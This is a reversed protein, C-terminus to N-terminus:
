GRRRARRRRRSRPPTRRPASRPALREQAVDGAVAERGEGPVPDREADSRRSSRRQHRALETSRAARSCATWWPRAARARRPPRAPRCRPRPPPGPSAPPPRAPPAPRRGPAPEPEAHERPRRAPPGRAASGERRGPAHRSSSSVSPASPRDRELPRVIEHEVVPLAAADQALRAPLAGRGAQTTIPSPSLTVLATGGASASVAM